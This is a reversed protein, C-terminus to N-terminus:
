LNLFGIPSAPTNPSYFNGINPLVTSLDNPSVGMWLALEAFYEDTATTPILVGSGVDLNSNLGLDPYLGYVEGGRVAGGMALVNGGWGHDSGNGNSTLTRAFDSITFTTVCDELGLEAMAAQFEALGLSVGRLMGAQADIVEDHHDWGGITVFFVQRKFGLTDRAAMTRAIMELNQSFYGGSFRTSLPPVNGVAEAFESNAALGVKITNAYTQQFINQYEQELLNDIATTQIQQFFGPEGYGYITQAGGAAANVSYEVTQRGAQFVNNGSLSVNMSINENDNMSNLLDALKGGWGIAERGQPVSTQWQQIQDAHSFLGVPLRHGGAEIQVKTTPEILTGVNAIFALKGQEYLGQVEPMSPHIGLDLGTQLSTALPLINAQPLALNSRTTAYTAHESSGRPVLMNYSDNGGALLVCVLARYDNDVMPNLAAGAAANLQNLSLWSSLFPLMGMGACGATQLFNRRNYKTSM